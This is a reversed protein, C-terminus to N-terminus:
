VKYRIPQWVRRTSTHLCFWLERLARGVQSGVNCGLRTVARSRGM